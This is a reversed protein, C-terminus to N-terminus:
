WLKLWGTSNNGTTKQEEKKERADREEEKQKEQAKYQYPDIGWIQKGNQYIGIRKWDTYWHYERRSYDNDQFYTTGDKKYVRVKVGIFDRPPVVVGKDFTIKVYYIPDVATAGQPDAVLEAHVKNKDFQKNGITVDDIEVIQSGAGYRDAAGDATYWYRMELDSVDLPKLSRNAVYLEPTLNKTWSEKQTDMQLGKIAKLEPRPPVPVTKDVADPNKNGILKDQYSALMAVKAQDVSKWDDGLIGGTDGSNGNFSWYTYSMGNQKLYDVLSRQWIGETDNGVSRGGFEGLLVPAIKDKVLYGWYHDWVGPLNKPYDPDQFWDQLYVSPGYDHASYVLQNPVKLQVPYIRAWQLSGGMWYWGMVNGFNDESKEIGEVIILWHPNIDLIANGAKEAALRWDTKPDGTGWTADGAPENHLDAGIVTDNGLYRRALFQWDAIWQQESVEDTYWLKSQASATPRHQDLIVKLGREGAGQIIKDMIEIASLGQLDPNLKYDIGDPKLNPDLMENSYPLRISNFGLKVIEDLMDKWNRAWLGHPVLTDTETGFWSVGTLKVVNGKSDVINAGDTHLYNLKSLADDAPKNTAPPTPSASSQKAATAPLACATTVLFAAILLVAVVANAKRLWSKAM